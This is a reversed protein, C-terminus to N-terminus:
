QRDESFGSPTNDDSTSSSAEDKENRKRNVYKELFDDLSGKAMRFPSIFSSKEKIQTLHDVINEKLQEYHLVVQKEEAFKKIKLAIGTSSVLDITFVGFFFGVVFCFALNDFLWGVSRFFIGDLLFYYAGGALTWLLSFLPCIIGQINGWRHSYDWLKIKMGKIFIIGGIYEIATMAICMIVLLLVTRLWEAEIFGLDIRCLLFLTCLGLGYIPLYPGKLFGPNVWKKTEGFFRRFFLEIVWGLMAGVFFLFSLALLIEKLM